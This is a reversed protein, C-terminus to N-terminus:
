KTLYYATLASMLPTIISVLLPLLEKIREFQVQTGFIATGTLLLIVCVFSLLVGVLIARGYTNPPTM